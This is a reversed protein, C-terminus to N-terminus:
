RTEFSSGQSVRLMAEMEAAIRSSQQPADSSALLQQLLLRVFHAEGLDRFILAKYFKPVVESPAVTLVREISALAEQSKGQHYLAIALSLHASQQSPDLRVAARATQEAQAYDGMDLYLFSQQMYPLAWDPDIRGAERFARLADAYDNQEMLILGLNYRVTAANPDSQVALQQLIRAQDPLGKLFYTVALNNLAPGNTEDTGLAQAFAVEAHQMDDRQFWIYGEQNYPLPTEPDILEAYKLLRVARQYHASDWARDSALYLVGSLARTVDRWVLLAILIVVIAAWLRGWPLHRIRGLISPLVAHSILKRSRMAALHELHLVYLRVDTAARATASSRADGYKLNRPQVFDGASLRASRKIRGNLRYEVVVEGSQIIGIFDLRTGVRWLVDGPKYERCILHAAVAELDQGSLSRFSSIKRLARRLSASTAM